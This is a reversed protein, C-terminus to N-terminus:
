RQVEWLVNSMAEEPMDGSGYEGRCEAWFTGGGGFPNFLTITYREADSPPNNKPPEDGSGKKAFSRWNMYLIGADYEPGYWTGDIKVYEEVGREVEVVKVEQTTPNFQWDLGEPEKDTLVTDGDREDLFLAQLGNFEVWQGDWGEIDVEDVENGDVYNDGLGYLNYDMGYDMSKYKGLFRM